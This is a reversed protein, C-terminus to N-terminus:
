AAVITAKYLKSSAKASELDSIREIQIFTLTGKEYLAGVSPLTKSPIEIKSKGRRGTSLIEELENTSQKEKKRPVGDNVMTLFQDKVVDIDNMMKQVHAIDELYRWNVNQYETLKTIIDNISSELTIRQRNKMKEKKLKAISQKMMTIDKELQKGINSEFADWKKYLRHKQAGKPLRPPKLKWQYTVNRYLGGYEPIQPKPSEELWDDLTPSVQDQLEVSGSKQIAKGSTPDWHDGVELIDDSINRIKRIPHYIWEPVALHKNIANYQDKTLIFGYDWDFLIAIERSDIDVYSFGITPGSTAHLSTTDHDIDLVLDRGEEDLRIILKSAMIHHDFGSPKNDPLIMMPISRQNFISYDHRMTYTMRTPFDPPTGELPVVPRLKGFFLEQGTSNWFECAFHKWMEKVQMSSLTILIPTIVTTTLSGSYWIGNPKREPDAILVTSRIGPKARMIGNQFIKQHLEPKDTIAYIRVGRSQAKDLELSLEAHTIKPSSIIIIDRANKVVKLCEKTPDEGAAEGTSLTREWINELEHDSQDIPGHTLVKSSFSDSSKIM